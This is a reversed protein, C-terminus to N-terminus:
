ETKKLMAVSLVQVSDTKEVQEKLESALDYLREVNKKIEKQNAELVSKNDPKLPNSSSPDDDRPQPPNQLRPQSRDQGRLDIGLAAAPLAGAIITTLFRRRSDM